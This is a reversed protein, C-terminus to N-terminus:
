EALYVKADAEVPQTTGRNTMDAYMKKVITSATKEFLFPFIAHTLACFGAAFMRASYSLAHVLHQFYTENLAHPHATFPNKTPDTMASDGLQEFSDGLQRVIM